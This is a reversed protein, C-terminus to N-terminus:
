KIGKTLDKFDEINWAGPIKKVIKKDSNVFYFTPTFSVKINLPLEDYDLNIKVAIFREDLWESMVKNQFVEKDMYECYHCGARVIDIMIIKKNQKQEKLAESYSYFEVAWLYSVSFLLVVIKRCM